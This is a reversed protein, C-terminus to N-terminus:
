KTRILETLKYVGTTPNRGPEDAEIAACDMREARNVAQPYGDSYTNYEVHKHYGPVHEALMHPVKSHQQMGPNDRFHLLLWLEFCPNSIALDIGNDRAMEKASGVDPHVDIDFVCWVSDFALNPDKESTAEQEAENKYQKATRVLTMPVGQEDVVKISVRPNRCAKWFGELYQKETKEGEAVVLIIPRPDRFPKQRGPKRKRNRANSM